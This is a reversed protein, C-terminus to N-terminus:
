LSRGTQNSRWRCCFGIGLRCPLPNSRFWALEIRFPAQLRIQFCVSGIRLLLAPSRGSPDPRTQTSTAAATRPAGPPGRVRMFM